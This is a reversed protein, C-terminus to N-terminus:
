ELKARRRLDGNEREAREARARQEGAEAEKERLRRRLDELGGGGEVDAEAGGGVAPSPADAPRVTALKLSPLFVLGHLLGFCVMGLFMKFLVRFGESKSMSLVLVALLTSIGGNAVSAGIEAVSKQVAAEVGLGKARAGLFGEAIHASYDVSFGVSLILIVLSAVNLRVDWMSMMGLLNLNIFIVCIVVLAASFVDLFLVSVVFVGAMASLLTTLTLKDITRYREMWLYNHNFAFAFGDDGAAAARADDMNEVARDVDKGYFFFMQTSKSAEIQTQTQGLVVTGAYRQLFADTGMFGTWSALAEESSMEEVSSDAWAGWAAFWSEISGVTVELAEVSTCLASMRERDARVTVDIGATTIIELNDVEGFYFDRAAYYKEVYSGEPLFDGIAIGKGITTVGKVAMSVGAVVFLAVLVPAMKPRTLFSAFNTCLVNPSSPAPEDEQEERETWKRRVLCPLLDYRSNEIRRADIALCAAFFTVQIAFVALVAISATICFYSIAPLDIFAGIGFALFDTVSTLTISPGVEGLANAVRNELPLSRPERAFADTIIFMDDIGVGMIIFICMMSMQTFPIGAYGCIGFAVGLSLGVCLVITLGLLIKSEVLDRRSLVVAVYAIMLIMAFSMLIQDGAIARDSEAAYSSEASCHLAGGPLFRPKAADCAAVYDQEYALVAASNSLDDRVTFVAQLASASAATLEGLFVHLPLGLSNAAVTSLIEEQSQAELSSADNGWLLFISSSPACSPSSPLTTCLSQFTPDSYIADHLSMAELLTSKTLVGYPEDPTPPREVLFMENRSNTGFNANLFNYHSYALSSHPYWNDYDNSLTTLTTGYLLISICLLLACITRYPRRAVSLALDHCLKPLRSQVYSSPSRM